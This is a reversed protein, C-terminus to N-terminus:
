AAFPATRLRPALIRASNSNKRPIAKSAPSSSDMGSAGILSTCLSIKLQKLNMTHGVGLIRYIDMSNAVAIDM